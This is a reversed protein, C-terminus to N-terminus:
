ATRRQQSATSRQLPGSKAMQLKRERVDASRRAYTGDAALLLFRRDILAQLVAGCADHDLNWLREAQPTTLRLGPMEIFESTIRQLLDDFDRTRISHYM